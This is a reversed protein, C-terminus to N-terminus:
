RKTAAEVIKNVEVFDDDIEFGSNKCALKAKNIVKTFNRWETYELVTALERCVM